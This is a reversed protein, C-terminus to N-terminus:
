PIDWDDSLVVVVDAERDGIKHMDVVDSDPSLNTGPGLGLDRAVIEAKEKDGPGYFIETERSERAYGTDVHAYGKGSIIGWAKEAPDNTSGKANLLVVYTQERLNTDEIEEVAAQRGTETTNTKQENGPNKIWGALLWGLLFGVMVVIVLLAITLARRRRRSDLDELPLDRQGRPPTLVVTDQATRGSAAHAEGTAAAPVEWAVATVNDTAGNAVALQVLHQCASQMSEAETLSILLDHNNVVEYLGDSCLFVIDGAEIPVSLIDVEVTPDVGVARTIVNRDSRMSAQERTIIGDRVMNEVLTHDQTLQSISGKRVLYARTDGVHGITLLGKEAIFATLTTGMGKLKNDRRAIDYVTTNVSSLIDHMLDRTDLNYDQEYPIKKANFMEFFSQVAESSAIEGAQHGGMGDAVLGVCLYRTQRARSFFDKIFATDENLDRPGSASKLGYGRM